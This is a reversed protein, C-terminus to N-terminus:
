YAFYIWTKREFMKADPHGPIPFPKGEAMLKLYWDDTKYVFFLEPPTYQGKLRQKLQNIHRIKLKKCKRRDRLQIKLYVIHDPYNLSALQRTYAFLNLSQNIWHRDARIRNRNKKKRRSKFIWDIHIDTYRNPYNIEYTFWSNIKEIQEQTM